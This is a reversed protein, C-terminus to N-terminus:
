ANEKSRGVAELIRDRYAIVRANNTSKDGYQLSPSLQVDLGGMVLDTFVSNEERVTGTGTATVAKEYGTIDSM